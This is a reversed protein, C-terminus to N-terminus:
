VCIYENKKKNYFVMNTPHLPTSTYSPTLRLLPLAAVNGSRLPMM